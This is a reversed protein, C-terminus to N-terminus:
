KSKDVNDEILLLCSGAPGAEPPGLLLRAGDRKLWGREEDEDAFGARSRGELDDGESEDEGDGDRGEEV